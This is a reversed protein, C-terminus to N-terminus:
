PAAVPEPTAPAEAEKKGKRLVSVAVIAAAIGGFVGVLSAVSTAHVFASKAVQALGPDGTTAALGLAEGISHRAAEPLDHPMKSQYAATLV